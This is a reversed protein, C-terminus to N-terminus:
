RQPPVLGDVVADGLAARMVPDLNPGRRLHHGGDASICTGTIWGSEAGLLFRALTAIDETSGERGLPMQERYDALLAPSNMLGASLDTPVLGPRIANVRLGSGGLEDAANEVLAEIAAKSVCYPAMYRHTRVGAISSIAVISGGGSRIIAAGAHKILLFTSTLNGTMVRNWEELSTQFLPAAAGTGANAVAYRLQGVKEAANVANAVDAENTADGVIFSAREGLTRCADVLKSETRGVLVVAAGDAVLRGAIALGIGSGGGTILGVDGRGLRHAVHTEGGSSELQEQATLGDSM